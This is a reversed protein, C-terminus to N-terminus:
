ALECWGNVSLVWRGGTGSRLGEWVSLFRCEKSRLRYQRGGELGLCPHRTRPCAFPGSRLLNHPHSQRGVAASRSSRSGCRSAAASCVVTGSWGEQSLSLSQSASSLWGVLECLTSSPGCDGGMIRASRGLESRSGGVSTRTAFACLGSRGSSGPILFATM